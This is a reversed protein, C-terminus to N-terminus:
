HAAGTEIDIYRWFDRMFPHPRYNVVHPHSLFSEVPHSTAKVPMYALSLNLAQHIVADREPGDPMVRQRQNLQNFAPLDFRAHNSQGKNAGNLVDLFYTGDPIAASWGTGWMMLKGARSAKINEQWQGVRFSVRLGLAQLSKQWLGQEQRSLQTPQAAYELLLASGDPQERWGDGDRDVYGYLDLLARARPLDFDSMETKLAPDYGSVGPPLLTQAPTAQGRRLLDIERPLNYGLAIARRLAVKDPTYGGVVPHDMNFYTYWTTPAVQRRLQIGRRALNPALVGHPAALNAFENPV